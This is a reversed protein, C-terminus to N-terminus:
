RCCLHRCGRLLMLASWPPALDLRILMRTLVLTLMLTALTMLAWATLALMMVAPAILGRAFIPSTLKYTLSLGVLALRM